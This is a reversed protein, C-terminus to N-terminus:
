LITFKYHDKSYYYYLNTNNNEVLVNNVKPLLFFQELFNQGTHIVFLRKLWRTYVQLTTMIHIDSVICAQKITYLSSTSSHQQMVKPLRRGPKLLRDICTVGCYFSELGNYCAMPPPSPPVM